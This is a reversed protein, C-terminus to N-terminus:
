TVMTRRHGDSFGSRHREAQGLSRFLVMVANRRPAYASLNKRGHGVVSVHADHHILVVNAGHDCLIWVRTFLEPPSRPKSADDNIKPCGRPSENALKQEVRPPAFRRSLKEAVEVRAALGM